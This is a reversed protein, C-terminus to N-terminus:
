LLSTGRRSRLQQSVETMAGVTDILNQFKRIVFLPMETPVPPHPLLNTELCKEFSGTGIGWDELCLGDKGGM